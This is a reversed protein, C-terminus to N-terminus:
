AAVGAWLEGIAWAARQRERAAWRRATRECRGARRALDRADPADAVAVDVGAAAAAEAALLWALPDDDTASEPAGDALPVLRAGAARCRAAVTRRLLREPPTPEGLRATIEAAAIWAIAEVEAPELGYAGALRRIDTQGLHPSAPTM